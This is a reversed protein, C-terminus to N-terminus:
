IPPQGSPTNRAEDRLERRLVKGTMNKPLEDRFEIRAPAKFSALRGKTYAILEEPTVTQGEKLAVYAVPREGAYPDPMAVVAAERVAPHRFLVEEVERPWVKFGAANIMDKKRDVITYYGDADVTAIDGTHFWGGRLAEATAEPKRWYGATVNDGRVIIEGEQGLPVDQDQEDVVRAEVGPITPGVTGPKVLPGASNSHTTPATETLGYGEQIEIGTQEKFTELVQVPLAAAGSNVVRLSSLDYVPLLGSNVWAVFMPPAGLFITCRHQQIQRLVPEAEFRPVLVFTGGSRLCSNMGVNMAYIHFLPLVLLLRDDPGFKVREMREIQECNAIFNRHTLMAGKSRGTTGSTYCIVGLDDPKVEVRARPAESSGAILPPNLGWPTTGVPAPGAGVVITERVSPSGKVADAIPGYFSEFGIFVSAGSDELMYSIEDSKYLVNLPVVVAGLRLIAYYAIVFHPINPLMVAVRDGRAVGRATLANAAQEILADLTAYTIPQDQFLIAPKAGDRGAVDAVLEALTRAASLPAASAASAISMSM